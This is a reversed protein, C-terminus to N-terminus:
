DLGYRQGGFQEGLMYAPYLDVGHEKFAIGVMVGQYEPGARQGAAEGRGRAQHCCTEERRFLLHHMDGEHEIGAGLQFERTNIEQHNGAPSGGGHDDFQNVVGDPESGAIIEASSEGIPFIHKQGSAPVARLNDQERSLGSFVARRM